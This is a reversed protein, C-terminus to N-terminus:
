SWMAIQLRAVLESTTAQPNLTSQTDSHALSGVVALDTPVSSHGAISNDDSIAESRCSPTYRVAGSRSDAERRAAGQDVTAASAHAEAEDRLPM